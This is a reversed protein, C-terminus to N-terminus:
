REAIAMRALHRLMINDGAREVAGRFSNAAEQKQGLARELLGAAYAMEAGSAKRARELAARLEADDAEGLKRAALLAYTTEISPAREAHKAIRSWRKRAAKEDDCAAEASGLEYEIRVSKLIGGFGYMTFPLNQDEDGITEIGALAEPCRRRRARDLIRALRTEIFAERVEASQKEQSFNAASFLQAAEDVRGSELMSLAAAATQKPSGPQTKPQIVPPPAQKPAAQKGPDV